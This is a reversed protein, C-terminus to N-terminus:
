QANIESEDCVYAEYARKIIDEFENNNARWAQSVWYGNPIVGGQELLYKVCHVYENKRQESGCGPYCEVASCMPTKSNETVASCGNVCWGMECLKKVNEYRGGAAAYDLASAGFNSQHNIECGMSVLYEYWLYGYKDHSSLMLLDNGSFDVYLPDAGNDVLIDFIEINAGSSVVAVLPTEGCQDTVNVDAGIQISYVVVDKLGQECAYLLLRNEFGEYRDLIGDCVACELYEIDQRDVAALVREREGNSWGCGMAVLWCLYVVTRKAYAYLM